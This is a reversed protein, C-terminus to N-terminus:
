SIVVVKKDRSNDIACGTNAVNVAARVRKHRCACLWSEAQIKYQVDHSVIREEDGIM